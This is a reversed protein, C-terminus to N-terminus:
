FLRCRLELGLVNHDWRLIMNASSRIINTNQERLENPRVLRNLSYIIGACLGLAQSHFSPSLPLQGVRLITPEGAVTVPHYTCTCVFM